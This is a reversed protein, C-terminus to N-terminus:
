AIIRPAISCASACCPEIRAAAAASPMGFDLNASLAFAHPRTGRGLPRNEPDQLSRDAMVRSVHGSPRSGLFEEAPFAAVFARVDRQALTVVVDVDHTLRPEGYLIGATSGTVFYPVGLRELRTIFPELLDPEPM